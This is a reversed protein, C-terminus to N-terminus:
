LTYFVGLSMIPAAFNNKVGTATEYAASIGMNKNLSYNAEIILATFESQQFVQNVTNEKLDSSPYLGRIKGAVLLSSTVNYGYEFNFMLENMFGSNRLNYGLSSTLYGNVGFSAGVELGVKYNTEGDGTLLGNLNENDGTPLEAEGFVSYVFSGDQDLGYRFGVAIDSLTSNKSGERFRTGHETIQHNTTLSNFPIKGILTFQDTIGYEGYLSTYYQKITQIAVKKGLSNYSKSAKLYRTELKFFGSKQKQTWGGAFSLSVVILLIIIKM